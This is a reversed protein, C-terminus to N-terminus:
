QEYLKKYWEEIGPTRGNFHMLMPYNDTKSNWVANKGKNIIRYLSSLAIFNSGFGSMSQFIKCESDRFIPYGAAYMRHLMEQTSGGQSQEWFGSLYEKWLTIIDKKYGCMQGGNPYRWIGGDIYKECWFGPPYCQCECSAILKKNEEIYSIIENEDYRVVLVDYADTILVYEQPLSEVLPILGELAKLEPYPKGLGYMTLQVENIMASLRLYKWDDDNNTFACSVIAVKSPM